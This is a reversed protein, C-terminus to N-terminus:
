SFRSCQHKIDVCLASEDILMFLEASLSLESYKFARDIIKVVCLVIRAEHIYMNCWASIPLITLVPKLSTLVVTYCLLQSNHKYDVLVIVAFICSSATARIKLDAFGNFHFQWSSKNIRCNFHIPHFFFWGDGISVSDVGDNIMENIHPISQTITQRKRLFIRENLITM